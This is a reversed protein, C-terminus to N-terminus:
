EAPRAARPRPLEPDRSLAGQDGGRAGDAARAPVDRRLISVPATSLGAERDRRLAAHAGSADARPAPRAGLSAVRDPDGFRDLRGSTSSRLAWGSGSPGGRPTAGPP